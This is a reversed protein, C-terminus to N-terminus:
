KIEQVGGHQQLHQVIPAVTRYPLDALLRDIAQWTEADISVRPRPAPPTFVAPEGHLTTSPNDSM